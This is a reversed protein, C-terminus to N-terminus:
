AAAEWLGPGVRRGAGRQLEQRIKAQYHRNRRAKPHGAFARYVDDLKVPGRQARMWGAIAQRWSPTLAALIIAKPLRLAVFQGELGCFALLDADQSGYACLVSPAGSNAKARRGDVHHFNLRGRLFLLATACDWVHRSFADTETRAFILATGAGHKALRALWRSIKDTSYPPNLWVRGHWPLILGNDVITFKARATPWPQAAPACPDLDFSDAGGLADIVEPPTLWEETIPRNSHHGGMGTFTQARM